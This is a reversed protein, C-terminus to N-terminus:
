KGMFEPKTAHGEESIGERCVVKRVTMWLIKADLWLGRHDVYWVDLEFRKEWDLANRGHVQAWGSIGPKVEHRRRQIADYRPLYKPLLPRPGVFAMDGRVINWLQPIEDLSANRLIRGLRTLRDEDPLLNGSSDRLDVMTRFKYITFVKEHQGIREQGFIPSLRTDIAILLAICALFPALLVLMVIALVVGLLSMLSM